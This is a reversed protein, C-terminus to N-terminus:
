NFISYFIIKSKITKMKNPAKMEFLTYKVFKLFKDKLVIENNIFSNKRTRKFYYKNDSLTDIVHYSINLIEIIITSKSM